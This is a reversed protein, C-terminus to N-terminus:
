PPTVTPVAARSPARIAASYGLRESSKTLASPVVTYVQPWFGVLEEVSVDTQSATRLAEPSMEPPERDMTTVALWVTDRRGVSTTATLLGQGPPAAADPVTALRGDPM